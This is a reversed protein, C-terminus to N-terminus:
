NMIPIEPSDDGAQKQYEAEALTDEVLSDLLAESDVSELRGIYPYKDHLQFFSLWRKGEALEKESLGETSRILCDPSKCGLCLARTIDKGAFVEYSGGEGYYKDGETVDYVRGFVSIYIPNGDLGNGFEELEQPTFIVKSGDNHEDETFNLGELPDDRRLLIDLTSYSAVANPNEQLRRNRAKIRGLDRFFGMLYLNLAKRQLFGVVTISLLPAVIFHFIWRM